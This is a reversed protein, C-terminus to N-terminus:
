RCLIVPPAGSRASKSFHANGVAFRVLASLVKGNGRRGEKACGTSISLIPLKLNYIRDGDGLDSLTPLQLVWKEFLALLPAGGTTKKLFKRSIHGVRRFAIEVKKM